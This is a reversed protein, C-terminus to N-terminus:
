VGVSEKGSEHETQGEATRRKSLVVADKRGGRAGMEPIKGGIEGIRRKGEMGMNGGRLGNGDVGTWRDFLWLRRSWDRGFRRKGLGWVQGLIPAAKKKRDKVQAEQGGNTQLVYGLYKIKKVEEIRREKWRWDKKKERRGDKRFRV